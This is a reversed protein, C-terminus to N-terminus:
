DQRIYQIEVRKERGLVNQSNEYVNGRQGESVLVVLVLDYNM